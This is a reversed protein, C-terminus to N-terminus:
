PTGDTPVQGQKDPTSNSAAQQATSASDDPAAPQPASASREPAPPTGQSDDPASPSPTAATNNPAAPSPTGATNDPAAPSPTGATNGPAAPSPTGATGDTAAGGTSDEATAPPPAAATGDPAAQSPAGATGDSADEQTKDTDPTFYSDPVNVSVLKTPHKPDPQDYVVASWIGSGKNYTFAASTTANLPNPMDGTLPILSSEYVTKDNQKYRMIWFYGRFATYPSQAIARVAAHYGPNNWPPNALFGTAAAEIVPVPISPRSVLHTLNTAGYTMRVTGIQPSDALGDGQLNIRLYNTDEPLKGDVSVVTVSWGTELDIPPTNTITVPAWNTGDTSADASFQGAIDGHFYVNASFKVSGPLNYTFSETDSSTRRVAAVGGTQKVFSLGDSHDNVNSWDTLPDNSVVAGTDPTRPVIQSCLTTGDPMNALVAYNYRTNPSLGNDIFTTNGIATAISSYNASYDTSRKITYSSAGKLPYWSIFAQSSAAMITLGQPGNPSPTLTSGLNEITDTSFRVEGIEPSWPQVTDTSSNAKIQFMVYQTGPPFTGAMIDGAWTGIHVKQNPDTNAASPAPGTVTTLAKTWNTGDPSSFVDIEHYHEYYFVNASFSEASVKYWFYGDTWASRTARTTTLDPTINTDIRMDPSHGLVNSWDVMPDIYTHGSAHYSLMSWGLLLAISCDIIRILGYRSIMALRRVVRSKRTVRSLVAVAKTNLLLWLLPNVRFKAINM